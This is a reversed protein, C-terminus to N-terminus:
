QGAALRYVASLSPATLLDPLPVSRGSVRELVPLLALLHLSDWGPLDDFGREVDGEALAVGVEDRVLGAFQELTIM